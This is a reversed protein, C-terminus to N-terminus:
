RYKRGYKRWFDEAKMEAEQWSTGILRLNPLKKLFSIRKANPPVIVATLDKCDALVSIDRLEKCNDLKILQLPMGRLASLDDVETFSLDLWVLKIGKLAKIDTIKTNNVSLVTLPLGRLPRLDDVPTNWLGLDDLPMGKLPRLDKVKTNNLALTTIPLGRLASIDKLGPNNELMVTLKGEALKESHKFGNKLAPNDNVLGALARKLKGPSFATVRGLAALVPERKRAVKSKGHEKRFAAILEQFNQIEAQTYPRGKLLAILEQNSKATLPLDAARLMDKCAEEAAEEATDVATVAPRTPRTLQGAVARALPTGARKLYQRAGERQRAELLLLAKMLDRAPGKAKGLRSLKEKTSLESLKFKRSIHGTTKGFRVRERGTITTGVVEIIKLKLKKKKLSVTLQKGIDKKFSALILKPMETLSAIEQALPALKGTAALAQDQKAKALRRSARRLDQKLLDGALERLLIELKARGAEALREKRAALIERRKGEIFDLAAQREAASESAFVGQYDKLIAVAEDFKGAELLPRAKAKLQVVLANAGAQRLRRVEVEAQAKYETAAAEAAVAEFRRIAAAFDRPHKRAYDRAAAFKTELTKLRKAKKAAVPDRKVTKPPLAPAKDPPRPKETVLGPKPEPPRQKPGFAIFALVGLVAVVVVAAAAIPVIPKPKPALALDLAPTMTAARKLRRGKLVRTIDSILEGWSQYREDPDKQMMRDILWACDDSVEPNIEGVPTYPDALVQALINMTSEGAYPPQGAVLHYLTAGLSYLDARFDLAQNGKAQEPSMYHPTGVVFGAMTLGSDESAQKSIGMDMLRVEGGRDIMINAPKIDRHLIEFEDWAYSLADAVKLAIQLAEKAPLPGDRELRADLSEGDVFLMALYYHGSDHGAEFATVINPHNLRGLMRVENMFREVYERDSTLGPPLVKLAVEREMSLQTALYVEGMAGSGLRKEVRLGGVETGVALTEAPIMVTSNCAPCQVYAGSQEADAEIQRECKPCEFRLEM